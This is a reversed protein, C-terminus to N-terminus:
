DEAGETNEFRVTVTNEGTQREENQRRLANLRLAQEEAERPPLVDLLKQVDLLTSSLRKLDGAPIPGEGTLLEETRDCLQLTYTRLRAQDRAACPPAGSWAGQPPERVWGERRVWDGLTSRPVGFRRAIAQQSEGQRYAQRMADKDLSM